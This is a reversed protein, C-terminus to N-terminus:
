HRQLLILVALGFAMSLLMAAFILWVGLNRKMAQLSDTRCADMSSHVFSVGMGETGSQSWLKALNPTFFHPAPEGNECLKLAGPTM